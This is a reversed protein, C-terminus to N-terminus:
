DTLRLFFPNLALFNKMRIVGSKLAWETYFIFCFRPGNKRNLATFQSLCEYLFNKVKENKKSKM